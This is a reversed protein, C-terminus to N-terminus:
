SYSSQACRLTPPLRTGQLSIFISRGEGAIHKRRELYQDLRRHATPHLPVLRSKRFKSGRMLLGDPTFDEVRLALAESIRLGTCVLLSLLAVYTAPRMSGAPKLRGAALLLREIDM